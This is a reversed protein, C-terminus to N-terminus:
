NNSKGAFCQCTSFMNGGSFFQYCRGYKGCGGLVCMDSAITFELPTTLNPCSVSEYTSFILTSLKHSVGSSVNHIPKNYSM